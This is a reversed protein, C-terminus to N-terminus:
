RMGGASALARIRTALDRLGAARSTPIPGAKRIWGLVMELVRITRQEDVRPAKGPRHRGRRRRVERPVGRMVDDLSEGADLRRQVHAVACSLDAFPLRGAEAWAALALAADLHGRLLDLARFHSLPLDPRAGAEALWHRVMAARTWRSLNWHPVGSGAAIDRISDTKAPNRWRVYEVDERYVRAFLYEGVEWSFESAHLSKRAEIFKCAEEVIRALDAPPVPDLPVPDPRPPM